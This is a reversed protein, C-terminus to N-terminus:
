AGIGKNVFDLSYARKVDVGKPFVGAETMTEYFHAWREDTMAGIGLKVADGSRVIGRENMVKLAYNIKDQDMDPNDRLILADAAANGPGGKVYEAWGELTATMFRQVVERKEEVMKRGVNVTTNYAEYGSDALLHVVPTVGAKMIAYPESSLFGQQSVAKDALFPAMNFTYPRVQDDSFGYKAKLFPWYSNRGGAAILIPKGKLAALSDNGVNPHSILVQPDKQFISGICLFPIGEKAYNIAEFSNSMIMDVRGGLLMQSPNQQPGGMRLDCEIGHKKYLGNAVAYYFGGHEAQARWNTLYSVKDLSQALVRAGPVPLLSGALGGGLLGLARRRDIRYKTASM